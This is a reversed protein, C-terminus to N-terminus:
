NSGGIIIKEYFGAADETGNQAYYSIRGPGFNYAIDKPVIFTYNFYGNTVSVKGRYLINKQLKFTFPAGSTNDNQLTNINQAKDFVTPYLIGNYNTLINNNKDRVFGSVTMTSLAKLTDANSLVVPASNISDTSVKFKPYALTLAPDGILTFNRSNQQTGVPQNKMFLYLDGLTPMRGDVPTELASYFEKNLTFNPGAFVVRVTSFLAVAGGKPNIFVYEGASTREPDDYRTFECTATFVLPLNNINTWSNIDGIEVIREHALGLEGGHGTYNLILCGKEMRKNIAEKASPFRQGGPTTEQVYADMYIKDVNFNHYATDVMTALKDADKHHLGGDEDDAIFSIINRWDGFPSASSLGSTCANSVANYDFGTQTYNIVKNVAVIAESRSKVSFRGIGIDVADSGFLGEGDDLLGYYDDTVYSNIIVTSNPSQYTPIYNTNGLYNKKNSYSGDGFLLLYKPLEASTTARDYFMKMFNRIASIDRGGSSFENYVQNTTVVATSFGDREEHHLALRVAENYFEPHTVIIYDKQSLGHINQNEIKGISTPSLFSSGNYSVFENLSDSSVTFDYVNGSQNLTQETVNKIDTVNWVRVASNSTLNYKAINGTGVSNIDRFSMQSGSMTLHRRANVIIFDLWAVAISTQKTINVVISPSVPTFSYCTSAPRAYDNYLDAPTSCVSLTASGSQSSINYVGTSACSISNVIRSVLDVRVTVPSSLDINPFSFPFNYSAINDFYEGYWKRGSKILNVNDNEVFAYDNFTTVNHTVPATTSNVTQIRKGLGLDVNIFYYSSDTYLNKSHQFVPCTASTVMDWKVPGKGYFLVYDNADFTGDNEGSVFIANEVLDDERQIDNREPLMVGGNGYVRINKPNLNTMDIGLKNLFTYDIKYIGDSAVSIKYWDGSNLVSQSAYTQSARNNVSKTSYNNDVIIDFAILKEIKGTSQNKRLPILSFVFKKNKKTRVVETKVIPQSLILDQRKVVALEADLLSEYVENVLKISFADITQNLTPVENFYRPLFEDEFAYYAGEFSLFSRQESDSYKQSVAGDWKIQYLHTSKGNQSFSLGVHVFLFSFLLVYRM